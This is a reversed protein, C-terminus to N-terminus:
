PCGSALSRQNLSHVSLFTFPNGHLHNRPQSGPKLQRFHQMHQATGDGAGGQIVTTRDSCRTSQHLDHIYGPSIEEELSGIAMTYGESLWTPPRYSMGWLSNAPVTAISPPAILLHLAIKAM